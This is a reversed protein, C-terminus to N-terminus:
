EQARLKVEWHAFGATPARMGGRGRGGWGGKAM